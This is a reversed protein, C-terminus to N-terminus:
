FVFRKLRIVPKNSPIAVPKKGYIDKLEEKETMITGTMGAFNTYLKFLKQYTISGVTATEPKIEKKEKAEIAQHLGKNYRRGEAIRGTNADILMIENNKVIYDVDKKLIYNAVLAQNILHRLTTASINSYNEINFYKECKIAGKETLFARKEKLELNYDENNLTKVFNQAMTYDEMKLNKPISLILPIKAEDILVSDAEDIIAFANDNNFVVQNIDYAENSRLYDFGLESNTIYILDANYM